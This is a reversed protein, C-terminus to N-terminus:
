SNYDLLGTHMILKWGDATKTYVKCSRGKWHFEENTNKHRWLTDVDVVAFAGDGETSVEVRLTERINHALNYNDFIGQWGESWRQSDFKGQPLVWSIPDHSQNDKPWPWVMDPHFISVLLKADKTNWAATEKDVMGQIDEVLKAKLTEDM